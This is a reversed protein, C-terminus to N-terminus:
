SERHTGIRIKPQIIFHHLNSCVPKQASRHHKKTIWRDRKMETIRIEKLRECERENRIRDEVCVSFCRRACVPIVTQRINKACINKAECPQIVDEMEVHYLLLRLNRICIYVYRFVEQYVTIKRLILVRYLSSVILTIRHHVIM